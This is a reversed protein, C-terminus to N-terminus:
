QYTSSWPMWQIIPNVQWRLVRDHMQENIKTDCVTEM